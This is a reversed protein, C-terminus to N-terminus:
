QAQGRYTAFCSETEWITVEGVPFNKSGLFDYILKALNEATPHVNLLRIEENAARLFPVIPDTHHLLLQHDFQEDLWQKAAEKIEAFDMVM